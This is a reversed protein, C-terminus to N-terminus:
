GKKELEAKLKALEDDVEDVHSEAEIRRVEDTVHEGALEKMVKARTEREEIDNEFKRFEAFPDQADPKLEDSDSTMAGAQATKLRAILEAKKLKASEVKKGMEDIKSRLQLIHARHSDLQAKKADVKELAAKHMRLASRAGEDDGRAVLQGAREKLKAAEAEAVPVSKELKKEEVMANALDERGQHFAAQMARISEEIALEPDEIKDLVSNVGGKVIRKMRDFIGM